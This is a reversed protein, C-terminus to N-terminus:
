TTQNVLGRVTATYHMLLRCLNRTMIGGRTIKASGILQYPECARSGDLVIADVPDILKIRRILEDCNNAAVCCLEILHM